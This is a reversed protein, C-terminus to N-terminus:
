SAGLPAPATPDLEPDAEQETLEEVALDTAQEAFEAFSGVAEGAAHKRHLVRWVLFAVWEERISAPDVDPKLKGDEDFAETLRSLVTASVGFHREFAVRDALPAFLGVHSFQQESEGEPTDVLLTASVRARTSM